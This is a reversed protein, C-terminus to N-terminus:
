LRSRPTSSRRATGLTRTIDIASMTAGDSAAAHRASSRSETRRDPLPTSPMRLPLLPGTAVGSDIRASLKPSRRSVFTVESRCGNSSLALVSREPRSPNTNMRTASETASASASCSDTASATYEAVLVITM